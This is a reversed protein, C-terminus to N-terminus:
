KKVDEYEADVVNDDKPQETSPEKKQDNQQSKYIAEGLKMAVETLEKTKAKISETDNGKLVEKLASLSAEIKAKDEASIKDGHEKM